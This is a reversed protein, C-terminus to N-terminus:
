LKTLKTLLSKDLDKSVTNLMGEYGKVMEDYDKLLVELRKVLEAGKKLRQKKYEDLLGEKSKNYYKEIVGWYVEDRNNQKRFKESIKSDIQLTILSTIAVVMTGLLLGIFIVELRLGEISIGMWLVMIYALISLVLNAGGLHIYADGSYMKLVKKDRKDKIKKGNINLLLARKLLYHTHNGEGEDDRVDDEVRQKYGRVIAIDKEEELITSKDLNYQVWKDAINKCGKYNSVVKNLDTHEISREIRNYVYEEPTCNDRNGYEIHVGGLVKEM